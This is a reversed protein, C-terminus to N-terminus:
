GRAEMADASERLRALFGDVDKMDYGERFRVTPLRVDLVPGLPRGSSVAGVAVDLLRDVAGMDYCLRIRM